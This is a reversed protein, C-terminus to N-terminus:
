VVLPLSSTKADHREANVVVQVSTGPQALEAPVYAMAIIRDLAPSYTGSTVAGVCAGGPGIVESGQLPISTCGAGMVLGCRRRSPPRDRLKALADAGIFDHSFDVASELAATFPDITENIEQGYAVQGAEVRLIDLAALGMPAVANDGAKRTIFDWAKGAFMNGITVELSWLGGIITRAAFYKAIVISGTRLQYMGLASAKDPLVSDLVGPAAPGIVAITNIKETQDDVKAGSDQALLYEIIAHRKIPSAMLVWSDEMRLLLAYDMIGGAANCLLTPLATDDEQRAVGATCVRELLDLAGDGRVRIRGVHGLDCVAARARATRAEDIAGVYSLPMSWGAVEGFKAEMAAQRDHLPTKLLEM